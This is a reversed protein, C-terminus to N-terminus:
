ERNERRRRREDDIQNSRELIPRLLETGDSKVLRVFFMRSSGTHTPNGEVTVMEGPSVTDEKWGGVVLNLRGDFEVDWKQISGDEGAVDLAMMTHPNILRFETVVGSVTVTRSADYVPSFAHHADTALPWPLAVAAFILDLALYKIM